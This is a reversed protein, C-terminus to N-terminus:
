ELNRVIRDLLELGSVEAERAQDLLGAAQESKADVGIPAESRNEAFPYLEALSKLRGYVEQYHAIAQDFLPEMGAGTRSRAERLFAVGHRRCTAWVAANYAMGMRMSKGAKVGKIWLDYGEPGAKYDPFIYKSPGKAHEVAFSLAERVITRDDGVPGPKVSYLEVIGIGTDGLESWAKPGRGEDCETGSYYYGEDDYGFIVYFEPIELEWGYCPLGEDIADRVYAWARRQLADLDQDYKIGFVGGTQYGLNRGLESLIASKWATPGSPCADEGINLIFAHGTGGFLWATSMEIGLYDLCGKLCGLQSVWSPVWRLNKLEQM